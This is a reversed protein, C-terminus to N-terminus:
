YYYYIYINIHYCNISIVKKLLVRYSDVIRSINLDLQHDFKEAM